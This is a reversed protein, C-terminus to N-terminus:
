GVLVIVLVLGELVLVLVIVLGVHVLVLNSMRDVDIDDKSVNGEDDVTIRRSHIRPSDHLYEITYFVAKVREAIVGGFTFSKPSIQILTLWINPASGLLNQARDVCYRCNSLFGFNTKHTLYRVIEGIQRRVFKAVNSCWLM